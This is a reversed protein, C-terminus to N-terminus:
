EVVFQTFEQASNGLGFSRLEQLIEQRKEPPLKAIILGIVMKLQVIEVQADDMDDLICELQIRKNIAPM